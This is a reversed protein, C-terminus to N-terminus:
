VKALFTHLPQNITITYGAEFEKGPELENAWEREELNGSFESRDCRGYWPEICIFPAHKGKPSWIGFLPADFEVTLYEEKSPTVLAVKQAQHNEIILADQDFMHETIDLKGDSLKWEEKEDSLLGDEGIVSCVISEERDFAIKYATQNEDARIPCNFAPHGGISFYMVKKDTNEVKWIVEVSRGKLRYGVALCFHFPYTQLTEESSTLAFWIEQETQSIFDFEMDRAFGHQSMTYTEGEFTSKKNKYNGVLPFLIPATRGWYAADAHWLYEQGTKKNVLSKMEAGLSTVKLLLTENEIQYM